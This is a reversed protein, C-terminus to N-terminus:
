NIPLSSASLLGAPVGLWAGAAPAQEQQCRPSSSCRGCHWGPQTPSTFALYPAARSTQVGRGHATAEPMNTHMHSHAHTCCVEAHVYINVSRRACIYEEMHAPTDGRTRTYTKRWAQGYGSTCKRTDTGRRRHVYMSTHMGTHAHTNTYKQVHVRMSARTLTLAHM